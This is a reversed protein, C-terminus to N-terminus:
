LGHYDLLQRRLLLVILYVICCCGEDSMIFKAKDTILISPGEPLNLQDRIKKIDKGPWPENCGLDVITLLGGRIQPMLVILNPILCAIDHAGGSGVMGRIKQNM